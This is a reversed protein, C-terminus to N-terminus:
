GALELRCGWRETSTIISSRCEESVCLKELESETVPHDSGRTRIQVLAHALYLLWIGQKLEEETRLHHIYWGCDHNPHHEVINLRILNQGVEYPLPIDIRGHSHIHCLERDGMFFGVADNRVKNLAIDGFTLVESLMADFKQALDEDALLLRSSNACLPKKPDPVIDTEPNILEGLWRIGLLSSIFASVVLGLFVGHLGLFYSGLWATPVAIFLSQLLSLITSRFAHDVANFASTAVRVSSSAAYGIPVVLLYTSLAEAVKPDSTFLAAIYDAGLLLIVFAALSYVIVFNLSLKIGKAVRDNLQAGFNQGIFPSLAGTLAGPIILLLADIRAGIGYAAIAEAGYVAVMSTLLATALPGMINSIVAPIGVSLIRNWSEKMENMKPFSLDILKDRLLLTGFIICMGVFRSVLTAYAAGKMGMAEFGFGGFIFLPDLIANVVATAIMMVMPTKADGSARLAGNGILPVILLVSGIFWVNMYDLVLPLIEDTAGLFIFVRKQFGLGLGTVLAVVLCGLIMAHTTMKKVAQQDGAGITRSLATTAGIMLGFSINTVFGIVPFSLSMAALEKTGLKSVWFTDIVNVLIMCILGFGMPIAFQRLVTAVDGDILSSNKAM